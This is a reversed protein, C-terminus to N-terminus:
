NTDYSDTKTLEKKNKSQLIALLRELISLLKIDPKPKDNEFKIRKQTDEISKDISSM